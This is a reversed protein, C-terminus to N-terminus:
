FDNARLIEDLQEGTQAAHEPTEYFHRHTDSLHGSYGGPPWNCIEDTRACFTIAKPRLAKPIPTGAGLKGPGPTSEDYLWYAIKDDPNRRPDSIMAVLVVREIQRPTLELATGHVIQAGQSFGVLAFRSSRCQKGLSTLLKRASAVGTLVNATYAPGSAAPYPIGVLRVTTDSRQHLKQAMATVSRRVETGSGFNKTASQDSGRAGLVILDACKESTLAPQDKPTVTATPAAPTPSASCAALLVLAGCAVLRRIM